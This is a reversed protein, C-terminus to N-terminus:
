RSNETGAQFHLRARMERLSGPEVADRALVVSLPWRQDKTKLRIIVLWSTLYCEIYQCPTWDGTGRRYAYEGDSDIELGTVAETGLRLAHHRVARYLSVFLALMLATVVWAPWALAWLVAGAGVHSATLLGSLLKSDKINIILSNNFKRSLYGLSM